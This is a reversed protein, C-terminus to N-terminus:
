IHSYPVVCVRKVILSTMHYLFQNPCLAVSETILPRLKSKMIDEFELPKYRAVNGLYYMAMYTYCLHHFQGPDLNCYYQYGKQTLLSCIHFQTYEKLINEYIGEWIEGTPERTLNKEKQSRYITHDKFKDHDYNSNEKNIETFYQARQGTLFTETKYTDKCKSEYSLETWVKHKLTMFAIKIPLYKSTQKDSFVHAYINDLEPINDRSWFILDYTKAM